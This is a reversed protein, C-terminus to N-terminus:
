GGAKFIEWKIANGLNYSAKSIGDLIGDIYKCASKWYVVLDEAKCVEDDSSVYEELEKRDLRIEFNKIYWEHKTKRIQHFAKEAKRLELTAKVLHRCFKEHLSIFKLSSASAETIDVSFASEAESQIQSLFGPQSM